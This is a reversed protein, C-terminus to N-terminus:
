TFPMTTFGWGGERYLLILGARKGRKERTEKKSELGLAVLPRSSSGARGNRRRRRRGDQKMEEVRTLEGVGLGVRVCGPMERKWACCSGLGM